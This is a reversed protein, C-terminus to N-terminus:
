LPRTLLNRFKDIQYEASKLERASRIEYHAVQNRIRLVLQFDAEITRFTSIHKPDKIKPFAQHLSPIWLETYTSSRILYRWFSLPLYDQPDHVEGIRGRREALTIAAKLAISSKSTLPLDDFWTKGRNQMAFVTLVEPICKRLQLELIGVSFYIRAYDQLILIQSKTEPALDQSDLKDM